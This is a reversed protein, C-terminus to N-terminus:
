CLGKSEAEEGSVDNPNSFGDFWAQDLQAASAIHSASRQVAELNGETNDGGAIYRKEELAQCGLGTGKSKFWFSYSADAFVGTTHVPMEFSLHKAISDAVPAGEANLSPYITAAYLKVGMMDTGDDATFTYAELQARTPLATGLATYDGHANVVYGWEDKNRSNIMWESIFPALTMDSYGALVAADENPATITEPKLAMRYYWDRLVASAYSAIADNATGTPASLEDLAAKGDPLGDAGISALYETAETGAPTAAPSSEASTTSAPASTCGTLLLLGATAAVLLRRPLTM